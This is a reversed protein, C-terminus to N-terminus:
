DLLIVKGSKKGRYLAFDHGFYRVGQPQDTVDSSIGIMFWGRPFTHPGINYDATKAM